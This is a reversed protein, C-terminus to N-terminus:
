GKLFEEKTQLGEPGLTSAYQLLRIVHFHAGAGHRRFGKQADEVRTRERDGIGLWGAAGGVATVALVGVPEEFVGLKLHHQLRRRDIHLFDIQFRQGGDANIQAPVVELKFFVVPFRGRQPGPSDAPLDHQVAQLDGLKSVELLAAAKIQIGDGRFNGVAQLADGGKQLIDVGEVVHNPRTVGCATM